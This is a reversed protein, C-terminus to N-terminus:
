TENNPAPTGRTAVPKTHRWPPSRSRTSSTPNQGSAAESGQRALAAAPRSNHQRLASRHPTTTMMALTLKHVVDQFGADESAWAPRDRQQRVFGTLQDVDDSPFGDGPDSAVLETERGARYKGPQLLFDRVKDFASAFDDETSQLITVSVFPHVTTWDLVRPQDNMSTGQRKRDRRGSPREYRTHQGTPVLQTTTLTRRSAEGPRLCGQYSCWAGLRPTPQHQWDDRFLRIAFRRTVSGVQGTDRLLRGSNPM